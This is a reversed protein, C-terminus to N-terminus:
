LSPDIIPSPSAKIENVKQKRAEFYKLAESLREERLLSKKGGGDEISFFQNNIKRFLLFGFVFAFVVVVLVLFLIVEWYVEPNSVLSGKKFSKKPKPIKIRFDM